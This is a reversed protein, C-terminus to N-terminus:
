RKERRMFGKITMENPDAHTKEELFFDTHATRPLESDWKRRIFLKNTLEAWRLLPVARVSSPSSNPFIAKPLTRDRSAQIAL